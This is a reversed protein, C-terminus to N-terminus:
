EFLTFVDRVYSKSVPIQLQEKGPVDLRVVIGEKQREFIKINKANVMYSRHCRVVGKSKLEAEISKMPTRVLVSAVRGGDAYYVTIYNDSSKIYILDSMKVSFKLVGGTDYFHTMQAIDSTDELTVSQGGSVAALRKNKDDWSFYLWLMSYPILLVFATNKFSIELLETVERDDDLWLVELLCYALAMCAVEIAVWVFYMGVSLSHNGKRKNCRYYMLMRSVAIVAMGMLVLLSSLTFYKITSMEASDLWRRSGFPEYINIFFLAFVATLLVLRTVNRKELLYDPINHNLDM